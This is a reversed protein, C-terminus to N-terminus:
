NEAKFSKLCTQLAMAVDYENAEIVFDEALKCYQMFKTLEDGSLGTVRSVFGPNVKADYMKKRQDNALLKALKRKSKGERSFRDYLATLPGTVAVGVGVGSQAIGSPTALRPLVPLQLDPEDDPLQLALFDKKFQKETYPRVVVENLQYTKTNMVARVGIRDAAYYVPVVYVATQFNVASFELTDGRQAQVSFYGNDASITGFRSRKNTVTVYPAITVSDSQLTFGQVLIPGGSMRSGQAHATQTIAVSIVGILIWYFLSYRKM